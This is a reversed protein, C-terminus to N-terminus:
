ASNFDIQVSVTMAELSSKVWGGTLVRNFLLGTDVTSSGDIFTGFEQYTGNTDAKSFYFDITVSDNTQTRAAYLKRAVETDLVTDSDSVATSGTGLAGYNIGGTYVPSGALRKAMESRAALVVLNRYSVRSSGGLAGLEAILHRFYDSPVKHAETLVADIQEARPKDIRFTQITVTGRIGARDDLKM